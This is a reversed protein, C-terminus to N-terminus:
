GGRVGIDGTAWFPFCKEGLCLVVVVCRLCWREWFFGGREKGLKRQWFFVFLQHVSSASRSGHNWKIGTYGVMGAAWKAKGAKGHDKKSYTDHIYPRPAPQPHTIASRSGNSLSPAIVM